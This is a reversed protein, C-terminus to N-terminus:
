FCSWWGIIVLNEGREGVVMSGEGMETADADDGIIDWEGGDVGSERTVSTSNRKENVSIYLRM